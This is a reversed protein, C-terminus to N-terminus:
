PFSYHYVTSTHDIKRPTYQRTVVVMDLLHEHLAASHGNKVNFIFGGGVEWEGSGVPKESNIKAVCSYRTNGLIVPTGSVSPPLRSTSCLAQFLRCFSEGPAPTFFGASSHFFVVIYIHLFSGTNSHFVIDILLCKFVCPPSFDFDPILRCQGSCNHGKKPVYM